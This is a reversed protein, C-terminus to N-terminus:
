CDAMWVYVLVQQLYSTVTMRLSIFNYYIFIFITMIYESEHMKLDLNNKQSVFIEVFTFM